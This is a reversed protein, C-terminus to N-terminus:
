PLRVKRATPVSELRRSPGGEMLRDASVPGSSPSASLFGAIDKCVNRVAALWM